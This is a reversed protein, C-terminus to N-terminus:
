QTSDHSSDARPEQNTKNLVLLAMVCLAMGGVFSLLIGEYRNMFDIRDFVMWVSRYLPISGLILIIEWLALYWKGAKM